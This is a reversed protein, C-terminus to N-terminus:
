SETIELAKEVINQVTLGYKEYLEDPNGSEGFTDNIGVGKVICPCESATIESIVSFLGGNLFHDEATIIGKTEKSAKIIAKRDAPKIFPFSIIRADINHNVLEKAADIIIPVMSGHAILTIDNGEKLTYSKGLEFECNADFCNACEKRGIRIYVPGKYDIAWKVAKRTEIEDSPALVVFNPLARMLALDDLSQHIAGDMGVALGPHTSMIKVNSNSYSISQRIQDYVRGPAFCCFTSVVPVYGMRELGAAMSIMNQEAIGTNLFRSPFKNEFGNIKTAGGLDGSLVFLDSNIEGIDVLEKGFADRPALLKNM